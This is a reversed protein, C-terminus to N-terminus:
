DGESISAYQVFIAIHLGNLGNIVLPSDKSGEEKSRSLEHNGGSQRQALAKALPNEFFFPSDSSEGKYVNHANCSEIGYWGAYHIRVM